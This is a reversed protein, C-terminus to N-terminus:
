LFLVGISWLCTYLEPTGAFTRHFQTSTLSLTSTALWALLSWVNKNNFLASVAVIFIIKIDDTWSRYQLGSFKATLEIPLAFSYKAGQYMGFYSL